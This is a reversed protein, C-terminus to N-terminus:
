VFNNRGIVELAYNGLGSTTSYPYIVIYYTGAPLVTFEVLSQNNDVSCYSNDSDDNFAIAGQPM